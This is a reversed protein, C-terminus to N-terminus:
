KFPSVLTPNCDMLNLVIKWRNSWVTRQRRSKADQSWIRGDHHCRPFPLLAAQLIPSCDAVQLPNLACGDNPYGSRVRASAPPRSCLLARRRCAVVSSIAPPLLSRPLPFRLLSPLARLYIALGVAQDFIGLSPYEIGLSIFTRRNYRTQQFLNRRTKRRKKAWYATKGLSNSISKRAIILPSFGDRM